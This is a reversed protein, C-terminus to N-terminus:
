RRVITPVPHFGEPLSSPPELVRAKCDRDEVEAWLRSGYFAFPLAAVYDAGDEHTYTDGGITTIRDLDLEKQVQAKKFSIKVKGNKMKAIGLRGVKDKGTLTKFVVQKM